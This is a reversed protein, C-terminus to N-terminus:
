RRSLTGVVKDIATGVGSERNSTTHVPFRMKIDEHGNAMVVPHGVKELMSVDNFNDGIAMCEQLSIGREKTYQELAIGKQAHASTIEINESGSSSIAIDTITALQENAVKLKAAQMSFALFKHIHISEDQFLQKYDDVVQILGNKFRNEAGDRILEVPVEPNATQYIDVIIDIGKEYSESYTGTSTYLEFYIGLENLTSAIHAAKEGSMSESYLVLGDKSRIEAGNSCIIPLSLNVEELAYRAEEYSRGTAVIVEIGQKQAKEIANKNHESVQLEHNLLTGDMDSAICRIM